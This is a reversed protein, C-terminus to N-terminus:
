KHLLKHLTVKGGLKNYYIVYNTLVKKGYKRSEIYPVMEMSLFPEYIGKFKFFPIVKRRTFGIGGNYAYSIFLPNDLRKALWLLHKKAYKM